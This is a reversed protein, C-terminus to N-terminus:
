NYSITLLLAKKKLFLFLVFLCFTYCFVFSKQWCDSIKCHSTYSPYFPVFNISLRRKYMTQFRSDSVCVKPQLNYWTLAEHKWDWDKLKIEVQGLFANRGRSDNHWVSLNLTKGHLEERKVKYQTSFVFSCFFSSYFHIITCEHLKMYSLLTNLWLPFFVSRTKFQVNDLFRPTNHFAPIFSRVRLSEVYVPNVTRKKISTKRKSRKDPYLYTKVYRVCIELM